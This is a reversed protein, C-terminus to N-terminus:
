AGHVGVMIGSGVFMIKAFASEYYAPLEFSRSRIAALYMDPTCQFKVKM